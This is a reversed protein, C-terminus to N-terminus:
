EESEACTHMALLYLPRGIAHAGQPDFPFEFGCDLCCLAHEQKSYEKRVVDLPLKDDEVFQM